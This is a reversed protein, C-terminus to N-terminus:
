SNHYISSFQILDGWGDEMPLEIGAVKAPTTGLTQHERIFNHHIRIGDLIGMPNQMGRMVKTRAKIENHYREIRNNNNPM